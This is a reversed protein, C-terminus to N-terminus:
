ASYVVKCGGLNESINITHCQQSPIDSQGGGGVRLGVGSGGVGGRRGDEWGWIVM